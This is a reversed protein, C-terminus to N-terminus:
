LLARFITEAGLNKAGEIDTEVDDGLMIFKEDRPFGLLDMASQFYIPSPKGILIAEKSAAYEIAKVFPGADLLLGDEPTKWYRNKQMAILDAGTFVKKFIETLIEYSWNKDMDGMVVAEPRDDTVYEKFLERVRKICYVSVKRYNNQVYKLTADAATMIPLTCKISHDIFYKKIDRSSSLTSNSIIYSPRRSENLFDLFSQVNPAPSKGLRLVGDLDILLPKQKISPM